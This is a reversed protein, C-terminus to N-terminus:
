SICQYVTSGHRSRGCLSIMNYRARPAVEAGDDPSGSNREVFFGKVHSPHIAAVVENWDGTTYSPFKKMMHVVRDLVEQGNACEAAAEASDLGFAKAVPLFKFGHSRHSNVWIKGIKHDASEETVPNLVEPVQLGARKDFHTRNFFHAGRQRVFFSNRFQTNVRESFAWRFRSEATEPAQRLHMRATLPVDLDVPDDRM